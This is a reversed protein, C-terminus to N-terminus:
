HVAIKLPFAFHGDVVLTYSGAPVRKLGTPETQAWMGTGAVAANPQLQAFGLAPCNFAEVGPWVNHHHAGEIEYGMSGCPGVQLTSQTPGPAEGAYPAVYNCATTGVNKVIFNVTLVQGPHLTLKNVGILLATTKAPCEWFVGHGQLTLQGPKALKPPAPPKAAKAVKAAQKAAREQASAPAGGLGVTALAAVATLAIATWPRLGVHM